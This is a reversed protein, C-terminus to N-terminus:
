QLYKIASKCLSIQEKLVDISPKLDMFKSAEELSNFRLSNFIHFSLLIEVYYKLQYIQTDIDNTGTGAHVFRNRYQRLHELIQKHYDGEDFHFRTRKITKDYNEGLTFTLYELVSWLKIFAANYDLSDLARVYRIIGSEIEAKYKSLKLKKRVKETFLLTQNKSFDVKAHNKYHDTEYWYVDAALSGNKKHLTHLAGLTIRNIPKKKGNGFRRVFLKSENLNWIGRLLDIADLMKNVAEYESKSKVHASIYYSFPEDQDILWSTVDVIAKGRSERYKKPLYKSFRLYCGNIHFGSLNSRWEINLTTLLSYPQAPKNKYERVANKVSSMIESQTLNKKKSAEHFGVLILSQKTESSLDEEIAIMSKLATIYQDYRFGKFSVSDGDLM